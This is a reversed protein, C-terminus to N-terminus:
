NKNGMIVASVIATLPITCVLGMSGAIARLIEEAIMEQNLIDFAEFDFGMFLLIITMASGVYALILTNTMTGMVDKGINMGAKILRSVTIDPIEKKMESLASAISMGVDMCAGLAGIVIGAFMINKYNYNSANELTTLMMTEENIGTLKMLNGFLMSFLCAVVIGAVTGIIAAFTKRKFGSVILFTLVTVVVSVGLTVLIADAGSYIAPIMTTFILVITIILGLLAKVGNLGGILIIALSYLVVVIILLNTKDFYQIAMTNVNLEGDEITAYVYVHNGKSLKYATNINKNYDDTLQYKIPFVSDNYAENNKDNIKVKLDQMIVPVISFQDTYEYPESAEVVVGKLSIGGSYSTTTNVEDSNEIEGESGYGLSYDYDDVFVIDPNEDIIINPTDGVETAFVSSFTILLFAFFVMLKKM